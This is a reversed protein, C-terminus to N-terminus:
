RVGLWEGHWVVNLFFMKTLRVAYVHFSDKAKHWLCFGHRNQQQATVKANTLNGAAETPYLCYIIKKDKNTKDTICSIATFLVPTWSLIKSRTGRIQIFYM